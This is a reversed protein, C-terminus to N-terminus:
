TASCRSSRCRWGSCRRGLVGPRRAAPVAATRQRDGRRDRVRRLGGLVEEPQDDTGDPAQRPVCRGRLRRHRLAGGGLLTIMVRWNATARPGVLLVGFGLLFPVYVAILVTATLDRLLGAPGDGLRWVMAALVTVLLGLTLADPGAFWALGIMLVGGGLLPILPPHAGTARVRM